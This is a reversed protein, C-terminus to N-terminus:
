QSEAASRAPQSDTSRVLLVPRRSERTVTESVSGRLAQHLRGHGHFGMVILDANCEEATELIRQAARGKKLRSEVGVEQPVSRIAQHLERAFAPEYDAVLAPAAGIGNVCVPPPVVTLVVLQAHQDHALESAHRLAAQADPSGDLAVLITRYCGM